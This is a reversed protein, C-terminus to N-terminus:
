KDYIAFFISYRLFLTTGEDNKRVASAMRRKLPIRAVFDLCGRVITHDVRRDTRIKHLWDIAIISSINIRSDQKSCTEDNIGGSSTIGLIGWDVFICIVVVFSLGDVEETDVVLGFGFTWM